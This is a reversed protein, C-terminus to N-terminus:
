FFGFAEKYDKADSPLLIGKSGLLRLLEAPVVTRGGESDSKVTNLFKNTVIKAAKHSM